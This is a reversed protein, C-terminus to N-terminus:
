SSSVHYAYGTVVLGTRPFTNVRSVDGGLGWTKKKQFMAVCSAIVYGSMGGGSTKVYSVAGGGWVLLCKTGVLEGTGVSYMNIRVVYFVDVGLFGGPFNEPSMHFLIVALVAVARLGDVDPRYRFPSDPGPPSPCLPLVGEFSVRKKPVRRDSFVSRDNSVVREESVAGIVVAGDRTGNSM